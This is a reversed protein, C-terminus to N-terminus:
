PNKLFDVVRDFIAKGGEALVSHGADPVSIFEAQPLAEAIEATDEWAVVADRQGALVLAPIQLSTLANRDDWGKLMHEAQALSGPVDLPDLGYLQAAQDVFGPLRRHFSPGFGLTMLGRGFTEPPLHELMDRLLGISRRGHTTLRAATSAVVMRNVRGPYSLATRFAILGGLSAGLLVTSNFGLHDLVARVDEVAGEATFSLGERSGGIGRNDLTVVTFVKALLAPLEGWLNRSAGLGAILTLCPGEGLRSGAIPGSPGNIIFDTM